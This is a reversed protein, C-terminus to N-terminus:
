NGQSARPLPLMRTLPAERPRGWLTQSPMQSFPELPSKIIWDPREGSSESSSANAKRKRVHGLEKEKLGGWM